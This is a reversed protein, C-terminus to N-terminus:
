FGGQLVPIIDKKRSVMKNIITQNNAFKVNFLQEIKKNDDTFAVFITKEKSIDMVCLLVAYCDETQKIEQMKTKITTMRNLVATSDNIEINCILFKKGGFIFEKADQRLLEEDTLNAIDSKATLLEKWLENVDASLDDALTKVIQRDKDTTTASSLCLTDTLIGCLILASITTSMAVDYYKFLEHLITCTAGCPMGWFECANVTTLGALAHHDVIMKIPMKDVGNPLQNPNTTDVLAITGGAIEDIASLIKPEDFGYKDLIYKSEGTIKGLVFPAADEGRAKFFESLIIASLVSDSDPSKHGFVSIM